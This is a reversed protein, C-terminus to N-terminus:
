SFDVPKSLIPRYALSGFPKCSLTLLHFVRHVSLHSQLPSKLSQFSLQRLNEHSIERTHSTTIFRFANIQLYGRSRWALLRKLLTRQLFCYPSASRLLQWMEDLLSPLLGRFIYLSFTELFHLWDDLQYLRFDSVVCRYPRGFEATLQLEKGRQKM